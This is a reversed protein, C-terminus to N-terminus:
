CAEPKEVESLCTSTGRVERGLVGDGRAYLDDEELEEAPVSVRRSFTWLDSPM